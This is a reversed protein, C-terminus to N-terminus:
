AIFFVLFDDQNNFFGILIEPCPIDGFGEKKIYAKLFKLSLTQLKTKRIYHWNSYPAMM